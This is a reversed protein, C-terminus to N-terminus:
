EIPVIGFHERDPTYLLGSSQMLLATREASPISIRFIVDVGQAAFDGGKGDASSLFKYRLNCTDCIAKLEELYQVNEEVRLDYGGAVVLLVKESTKKALKQQTKFHHFAEIALAINKKREYRNLSLFVTDYGACYPTLKKPELPLEEDSLEKVVPYLVQPQSRSALKKFTDAYIQATFKSNVLVLSACGTTWEEIGDVVYRYARKWISGREYCLLM